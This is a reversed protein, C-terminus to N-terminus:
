WVDFWECMYCLHSRTPTLHNFNTLNPLSPQPLTILPWVQPIQGATDICLIGSLKAEMYSTMSVAQKSRNLLNQQKVPVVANQLVLLPYRINHVM